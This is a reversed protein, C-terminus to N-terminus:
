DAVGKEHEDEFQTEAGDVHIGWRGWNEPLPAVLKLPTKRVPHVFQLAYAHLAIGASWAQSAGYKVDGAIPWGRHSLQVRIQHKRGTHLRVLLVAGRPLQQVVRYSLRAQKAGLVDRSGAVMRHAAENKYLWDVCEASPPAPIREVVVVYTKQVNGSRFLETLRAAAKSTRAFVVVGSAMSDLRSVVGLYVNGPKHYKARVYDKALRFLSPTDAAVGM